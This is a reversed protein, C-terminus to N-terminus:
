KKGKTCTLIRVGMAVQSKEQLILHKLDEFNQELWCAWSKYEENEPEAELLLSVDESLYTFFTIFIANKKETEGEAASIYDYWNYIDEYGCSTLIEYINRGIERNGSYKDKELIQLFADLLGNEDDSLSSVRDNSEIIFLKGDPKLFDRLKILLKNVDSLHMLVFSLYIIDFGDIHKEDMISNLMQSFGDSEVDSHYFSFKENGKVEQAIVALDKNYELGVVRSISDLSFLEATKNGVNCGIDLVSLNDKGDIIKQLVTTEYDYLLSNQIHLRKIETIEQFVLQNQM